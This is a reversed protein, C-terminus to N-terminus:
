RKWIAYVLFGVLFVTMVIMVWEPIDIGHKMYYYYYSIMPM